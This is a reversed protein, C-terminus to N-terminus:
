SKELCLDLFDFMATMSRAPDHNSVLYQIGRFWYEKRENESLQSAMAIGEAIEEPSTGSLKVSSDGCDWKEPVIPTCGHLLAEGYCKQIGGDGAFNTLDIAFRNPGYITELSTEAENYFGSRLPYVSKHDYRGMYHSKWFEPFDESLLYPYRSGGSDGWIDLRIGCANEL